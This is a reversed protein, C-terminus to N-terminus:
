NTVTFTPRSWEWGCAKCVALPVSDRVVHDQEPHRCAKQAATKVGVNKAAQLAVAELDFGCAKCIPRGSSVDFEHDCATGGLRELERRVRILEGKTMEGMFALGVMYTPPMPIAEGQPRWLHLCHTHNNIHTSAPPHYQVVCEEPEFFMEKVWCMEEWTPNRDTFSASVHDWGGMDSAVVNVNRGNPLRVVFCGNNGTREASSGMEGHTVRYKEVLPNPSPRM